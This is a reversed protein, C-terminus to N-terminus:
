EDKLHKQIAILITAKVKDRDATHYTQYYSITDVDEELLKIGKVELEHIIDDLLNNM